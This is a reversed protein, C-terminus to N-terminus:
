SASCLAAAPIVVSSSIRRTEDPSKSSHTPAFIKLGPAANYRCADRRGYLRPKWGPPIFARVELMGSENTLRQFSVRRNRAAPRAGEVAPPVGAAM